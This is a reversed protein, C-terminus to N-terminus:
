DSVDRIRVELALIELASEPPPHCGEPARVRVACAAAATAPAHWSAQQTQVNLYFGGPVAGAPPAGLANALAAPSAETGDAWTLGDEASGQRFVWAGVLIGGVEEAGGGAGAGGGAAEADGAGSSHAPRRLVRAQPAAGRRSLGPERLPGAVQTFSAPGFSTNLPEPPPPVTAGSGRATAHAVLAKFDAAAALPSWARLALPVGRDAHFLERLLTARAQRRAAGRLLTLPPNHVVAARVASFALSLLASPPARTPPSPPHTPSGPGV